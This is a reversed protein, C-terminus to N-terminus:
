PHNPRTFGLDRAIGPTLRKTIAIFDHVLPSTEGSPWAVVLDIVQPLDSVPRFDVYPMGLRGIWSPVLAVGLGSAVQAVVASTHTCEQVVRYHLGARRMAGTMISAYNAGLIPAYGILSEGNFDAVTVHDRACLRHGKPLVAVFGERMLTETQLFAARETPRIFAVNIDGKELTRLQNSTSLPAVDVIVGPHAKRFEALIPPLVHSLAVAVGAVNIRGSTENAMARTHAVAREAGDLLGQAHRLLTEGASTLRTRRTTRHFLQVGLREEMQRIQQSLPAQAMGLREAARGFHLEEALCVFYRLQRLDFGNM